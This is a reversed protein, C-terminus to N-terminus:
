FYMGIGSLRVVFTHDMCFAGMKPQGVSRVYSIDGFTFSETVHVEDIKKKLAGM